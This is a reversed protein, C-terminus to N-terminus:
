RRLCFHIVPPPPPPPPPPFPTIAAAPVKYLRAVKQELTEDPNDRNSHSDQPRLFASHRNAAAIQLMGLGRTDAMLAAIREPKTNYQHGAQEFRTNTKAYLRMKLAISAYGRERAGSGGGGGGGGEERRGGEEGGRKCDLESGGCRLAVGDDWCIQLFYVAFRNLFSAM